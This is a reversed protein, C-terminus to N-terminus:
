RARLAVRGPTIARGFLAGCGQQSGSPPNYWIYNESSWFPVSPIETRGNANIAPVINTRDQQTDATGSFALLYGRDSTIPGPIEGPGPGGTSITWTFGALPPQGYGYVISWRYTRGDSNVTVTSFRYPDTGGDYTATVPWRHVTIPWGCSSSIQLEFTYNGSINGRTSPSPTPTPTPSPAPTPATPTQPAGGGSCSYCLVVAIATLAIGGRERM